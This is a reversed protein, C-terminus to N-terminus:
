SVSPGCSKVGAVSFIGLATSTNWAADSGAFGTALESTSILLRRLSISSASTEILASSSIVSHATRNGGGGLGSADPAAPLLRRAAAARRLPVM